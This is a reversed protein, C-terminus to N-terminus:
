DFVTPLTPDQYYRFALGIEDPAVKNIALEPLADLTFWGVDSTELSPTPDGGILDCIFLLRYLSFAHPKPRHRKDHLTVSILRTARVRYGSEERVEREVSASPTDGVDCFGGPLTWLGNEAIEQVLLIEAGHAGPRFVAGRAGVKPTAYGSQQAFLREIQPMPTASHTAAIDAAIRRVAEFRQIDFSDASYALGTQAIAQLERVWALWQQEASDRDVM